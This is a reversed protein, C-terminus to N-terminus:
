RILMHELFVLSFDLSFDLSFGIYFLTEFQIFITGFIPNLLQIFYLPLLAGCPPVVRGEDLDINNEINLGINFWHLVSVPIPKLIPKFMPEEVYTRLSYRRFM